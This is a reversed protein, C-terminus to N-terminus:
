FKIGEITEKHIDSMFSMERRFNGLIPLIHTFKDPNENNVGDCYNTVTNM